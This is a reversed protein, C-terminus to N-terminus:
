SLAYKDKKLLVKAKRNTDLNDISYIWSTPHNVKQKMFYNVISSHGNVELLKSVKKAISELRTDDVEFVFDVQVTKHDILDQTLQAITGGKFVKM